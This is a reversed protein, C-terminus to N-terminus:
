LCREIELAAAWASRNGHQRLRQVILEVDAVSRVAADGRRMWFCMPFRATAERAAVVAAESAPRQDTSPPTTM